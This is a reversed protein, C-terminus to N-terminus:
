SAMLIISSILSTSAAFAHLLPFNNDSIGKLIVRALVFLLSSYSFTEFITGGFSVEVWSFVIGM